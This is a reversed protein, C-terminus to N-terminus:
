HSPPAAFPPTPFTDPPGHWALTRCTKLVDGLAATAAPGIDLILEDAAIDHVTVTRTPPNPKFEKAVVVDYPLHVICGAADAADFIAEATATLDHECLSKGVNVGRAALFTNAM